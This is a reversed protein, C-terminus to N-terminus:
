GLRKLCIVRFAGPQSETVVKGTRDRLTIEMGELGNLELFSDAASRGPDALWCEGDEALMANITNLLPEHLECDYLVDSALLLSAKRNTPQRWDLRFGSAHTLGNRHANEVATEVALEVCDTFAVDLGAILAAIGVVGVGCGLEIAKTNAPWDRECVLEALRLSTPWLEAWFPDLEVIGQTDDDLRDLFESPQAPLVLHLRRDRLVLEREAWGGPIDNSTVSRPSMVPLESPM